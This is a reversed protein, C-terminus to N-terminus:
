TILLTSCLILFRFAKGNTIKILVKNLFIEYCSKYPRSVPLTFNEPNLFVYLKYTLFDSYRSLFFDWFGQRRITWRTRNTVMHPFNTLQFRAVTTSGSRLVPLPILDQPAAAVPQLPRATAAAPVAHLAMPPDAANASSGGVPLM